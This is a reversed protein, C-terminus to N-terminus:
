LPVERDFFGSNLVVGKRILQVSGITGAIYMSFHVLVGGKVLDSQTTGFTDIICLNWWPYYNSIVM